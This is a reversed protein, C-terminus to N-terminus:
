SASVPVQTKAEEKEVMAKRKETLLKRGAETVEDLKNQDGVLGLLYNHLEQKYKAGAGYESNAYKKGIPTTKGSGNGSTWFETGGNLVDYTTEGKNGKGSQFLDRIAEVNNLTRTSIIEGKSADVPKQAVSNLFHAIIGEAQLSDAIKQSALAEMDTTFDARGTLAANVLNGVNELAIKAGKRHFVRFNLDGRSNLSWQLTNMCVVRTMTDYCRVSMKGNHSTAFTLNDKFKDGNVVFENDGLKVSIFFFAGAGLTGVCAVQHDVDKLADQAAAWLRGNEIVEYKEGMLGLVSQRQNEPLDDRASLDAILAKYGECIVDTNELRVNDTSIPFLMPEVCQEDIVPVTGRVPDGNEDFHTSELRHWSEPEGTGREQIHRIIDVPEHIEHM